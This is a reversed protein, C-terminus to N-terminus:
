ILEADDVARGDTICVVRDSIEKMGPNHSVIICAIGMDDVLSRILAAVGEATKEDLNGTPEDALILEPEKALARAIAVRQQEGGSLQSPYNRDKHAMGVRKLYSKSRKRIEKRPLSLVELGAEVNELANLTPVLNYFQFIFGIKEARFRTLARSNMRHLSQGCVTLKGSDVRDIGGFINLVTTKGCGSPGFISLLEGCTVSLSFGKLVNASVENQYSKYIDDADVIRYGSKAQTNMRKISEPNVATKM